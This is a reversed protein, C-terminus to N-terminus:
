GILEIFQDIDEVVVALSSRWFDSSRLDIGFREALTVPSAMGTLSLLDDYGARFASPDSQYRAYLGLGFLLGFMYPFNYFGHGSSYYHSKVAWMYPHLLDPNLGDGYTERQADLMLRNLEDISVEHDRRAAFLRQEFLFRSTIDVVVQSSDQLSGDIISLQEARDANALAAHRVITECFISATEALTSPTERQIPTREALNFNHYAHGLEHAVTSMGGYSPTYNVLVRSEDARIPMCFGGGSKGPRPEADIWRERFARAAFDSMRPSYSGFQEVIFAEADAYAWVRSSEGVPAFLDYWALATDGYLSAKARWYRRFDPFSERAATLMADLTERDLHNQFLALDVASDWRRRELLTIAEGKVRNIAAAMSTAVSEWGRLEAEYGERRVDRDADYALNRIDSMPLDRTEGDLDVPTMLRSWLNSHLKEWASGGSVHLEAALAEEPPSMLHQAQIQALELAYAHDQGVASRATLASIDLTGIWALYRTQVKTLDVILQDFESSKAQALDDRSDTSVFAYIYAGVTEGAELLRNLSSTLEDFTAVTQDNIADTTLDDIGLADARASLAHIDSKLASFAANFEPSDLGPFIVSM